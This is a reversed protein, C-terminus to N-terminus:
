VIPYSLPPSPLDTRDGVKYRSIYLFNTNSSTITLSLQFSNSKFPLIIIFRTTSFLVQIHLGFGLTERCTVQCAANFM